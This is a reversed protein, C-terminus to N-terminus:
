GRPRWSSAQGRRGRTVAVMFQHPPRSLRRSPLPRQGRVPLRAHEGWEMGAGTRFNEVARDVAAFVAQAVQFGGVAFAPSEADALAPVHEPPLYYRGTTAEYRVYGAATQANLWERVYREHTGTEVGARGVDASRRRRAGPVTGPSRRRRGTRREHRDRSREGPPWSSRPRGAQNPSPVPQAIM